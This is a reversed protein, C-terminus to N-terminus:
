GTGEAALVGSGRGPSAREANLPRVLLGREKREERVYMHRKPCAGEGGFAKGDGQGGARRVSRTGTWCKLRLDSQMQPALAAARKAM